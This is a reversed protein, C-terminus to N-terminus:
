EKFINEVKWRKKKINCIKYQNANSYLLEKTKNLDWRTRLYYWNAQSWYHIKSGVDNFIEIVGLEDDFAVSSGIQVKYYDPNDKVLRAIAGTDFAFGFEICEIKGSLTYNYNNKVINYGLKRAYEELENLYKESTRM